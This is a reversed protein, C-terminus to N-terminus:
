WCYAYSSVRPFFVCGWFECRTCGGSVGLCWFEVGFWWAGWGLLSFFLSARSGIKFVRFVGLSDGCWVLSSSCQFVWGALSFFFCWELCVSVGLLFLLFAFGFSSLACCGVCYIGLFVCACRVCVTVTVQVVLFVLVGFVSLVWFGM